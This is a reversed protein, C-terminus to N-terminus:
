GNLFEGITELLVEDTQKKPDVAALGAFRDFGTIPIDFSSLIKRVAMQGQGGAKDPDLWLMLPGDRKALALADGRLLSTGMLPVATIGTVDTIRQASLLDETLVTAYGTGKVIGAGADGHPRLYKPMVSQRNWWPDRAVWTMKDDALRKFPLVVRQMEAAWCYGLRRLDEDNLNSDYFWIRAEAPWDRPHLLCKDPVANSDQAKRSAEMKQQALALRESLTLKPQYVESIKERFDFWHYSYGNYSLKTSDGVRRSQGPQMGEAHKLWPPPTSWFKSM